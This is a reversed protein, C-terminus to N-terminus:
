LSLDPRPLILRIGQLDAESPDIFAFTHKLDTSCSDFSSWDIALTYRQAFDLVRFLPATKEFQSTARLAALYNNRYVTPIIIRSEEAAVLEANMMIRSVRGNGDLFPHVESIFFMMFVARQFPEQLTRYIEFGRKLTGAVLDFSVFSTSGVRNNKDKFVGPNKTPRREMIVSHRHKLIVLLEEFDRPCKQMESHDSVLSYTGFIDHADEPRETPIKGEFIIERAEDVEFETGEIFNSFYAEYFALNENGGKELFPRSVPAITVLYDRFRQFLDVRQSDYPQGKARANALPSSLLDDRTGLLTGILKEISQFETQLNLEGAIQKMEDRLKNLTEEGGRQLFTELREEIEKRSLTRSIGLRERSPRMNELYARATSSLYLNGIFPKDSSLPPSGKRTRITIGPLQIARKKDSIIFISGDDSPKNELATRDAILAGPFYGGVIDWLYRKILREASESFNKTYLRSALKRLRKNKLERSVLRTLDNNSVFVEPLQDFSLTPM